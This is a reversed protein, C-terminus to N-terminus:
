KKRINALEQMRTIINQNLEGQECMGDRCIEGEKCDTDTECGPINEPADVPIDEPAGMRPQPSIFNSDLQINTDTAGGHTGVERDIPDEPCYDPHGCMWDYCGLPPTSPQGASPGGPGYEDCFNCCDDIRPNIIVNNTDRPKTTTTASGGCAYPLDVTNGGWASTCEGVGTVKADRIVPGFVGAESTTFGDGVGPTNGGGLTICQTM